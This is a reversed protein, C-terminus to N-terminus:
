AVCVARGASFAEAIRRCAPARRASAGKSSSRGSGRRAQRESTGLDLSDRSVPTRHLLPGEPRPALPGFDALLSRGACGSWATLSAYRADSHTRGRVSPQRGKM